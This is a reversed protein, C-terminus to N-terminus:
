LYILCWSNFYKITTYVLLSSYHTCKSLSHISQWNVQREILMYILHGLWVFELNICTYQNMNTIWYLSRRRHIIMLIINIQITPRKRTLKDDDTQKLNHCLWPIWHIYSFRSQPLPPPPCYGGAYRLGTWVGRLNGM